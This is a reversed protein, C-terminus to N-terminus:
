RYRYRIMSIYHPTAVFHPLLSICAAWPWVIKQPPPVRHLFWAWAFRFSSLVFSLSFTNGQNRFHIGIEKKM